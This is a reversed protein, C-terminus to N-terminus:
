LVHIEKQQTGILDNSKHVDYTEGSILKELEPLLDITYFTSSMEGKAQM